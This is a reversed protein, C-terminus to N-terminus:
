ACPDPSVGSCIEEGGYEVSLSNPIRHPGHVTRPTGSQDTIHRYLHMMKPNYRWWWTSVLPTAMGIDRDFQGQGFDLKRMDSCWCCTETEHAFDIHYCHPHNKM